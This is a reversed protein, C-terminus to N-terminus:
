KNKGECEGADKIEATAGGVTEFVIGALRKM